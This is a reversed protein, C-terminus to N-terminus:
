PMHLSMSGRPSKLRPLSNAIETTAQQALPIRFSSFAAARILLGCPKSGTSRLKAYSCLVRCMFLLFVDCCVDPPLCQSAPISFRRLSSLNLTHFYLITVKYSDYVESDEPYAFCDDKDLVVARIDVIKDKGPFAKNLPIPLDNFTAVTAHPLCLSPKALLKFINLSASLNLNMECNEPEGTFFCRELSQCNTPIASFSHRFSPIAQFQKASDSNNVRPFVSTAHAQVM